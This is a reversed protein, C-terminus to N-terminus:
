HKERGPKPGNPEIVIVDGINKQRPTSPGQAQREFEALVSRFRRRTDTFLQGIAFWFAAIGGLVILAALVPQAFLGYVALVLYWGALLAVDIWSVQRQERVSRRALTLGAVALMAVSLIPCAILYVLFEWGIDDALMGRAILIWTPLIIAAPVQAFYFARRLLM